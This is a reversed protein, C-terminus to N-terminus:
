QNPSRQPAFRALDRQTPMYATLVVVFSIIGPQKCYRLADSFSGQFTACKPAHPTAGVAAGFRGTLTQASLSVAPHMEGALNPSSRSVRFLATVQLPL